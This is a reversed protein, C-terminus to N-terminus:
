NKVFCNRCAAQYTFTGDDPIVPPMGGTIPLNQRLVQSYIAGPTRCVDCVARKYCVEKPGLEFLARVVAFMKGQYDTDLGAAIVEVGGRLLREVTKAEDPSFM